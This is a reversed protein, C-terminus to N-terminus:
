YCEGSIKVDYIDQLDFDKMVIKFSEKNEKKLEKDLLISMKRLPKLNNLINKYKNKDKKVVKTFIRCKQYDIKGQNQLKGKIILMNAFKLKTIKQNLIEVKRVTKDFYLKIFIPSFAVLILSILFLSIAFKTRKKINLFVMMIVFFFFVGVWSIAFYDYITLHHIYDIIRQKLENM